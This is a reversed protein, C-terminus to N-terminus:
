HRAPKLGRAESVVAAYLRTLSRLFTEPAHRTAALTSAKAALARALAPDSLLRALARALAEEDRPAVLLASEGDAVIEPVGGVATAAAPVGAAMAELLAYPSGESHSPLAFLDAAAYFPAVDHTQGAFVTRAGLGLEASLQELRGREPGDGVIVLRASADTNARTLRAFARLLDAQAKERSLRGVTLVVCEGERLGLRERLRRVEDEGVERGATVPNHQVFIKERAVGRREELERAFPGCVTVVRRAAPLSWRDLRNYALMKRDTTTYGHHYAVWPLMRPLGSARALFHSKVHHTLLLDPTRRAVAERLAGLARPDFRFREGVLDVRLGLARAAAVFENPADGATRAGDEGADTVLTAADGGRLFTIISTEVAPLDEARRADRAARCFDLMSKAAGTVSTAEMVAVLRLTSPKATGTGAL